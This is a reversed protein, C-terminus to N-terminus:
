YRRSDYPDRARLARRSHAYTVAGTVQRKIVQQQAVCRAHENNIGRTYAVILLIVVAAAIVFYQKGIPSFYAAALLIAVTVVGIGYSLLIHWLGAFAWVIM